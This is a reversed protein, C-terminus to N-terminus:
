APPTLDPPRFRARHASPTCGLHRRFQRNFHSLNNFGCDLAVTAVPHDTEVLLRCAERLRAENVYDTFGRGTARRFFRSCASLTLHAVRAAGALSLDGHLNDHVYRLLRAVRSRAPHSTDLTWGASALPRARRHRALAELWSLLAAISAAGSLRVLSRAQRGLRDAAPGSLLLGRDSARLLDRIRRMEPLNLPPLSEMPFQVVVARQGGRDAGRAPRSQSAWTHPLNPGLVVLEGGRYAGAHDGVYRVGHGEEIWTIEVEPHYHFHFAYRAENREFAALSRHPRRRHPELVAQM